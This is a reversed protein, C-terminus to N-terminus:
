KSIVRLREVSRETPHLWLLGLANFFQFEDPTEIIFPCEDGKPCPKVVKKGNKEEFQPLHNHLLCDKFFKGQKLAFAMLAHGFDAPGTRVVFTYGWRRKDTIFLDCCVDATKHRLRKYNPGNRPTVSDLKWPFLPNDFLEILREALHDTLYTEIPQGFLDDLRCLATRPVACIEIDDPEPKGRRTSGALEIQTCDSRLVEILAGGLQKAQALKM